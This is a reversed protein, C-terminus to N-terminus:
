TPDCRQAGREVDVAHASIQHNGPGRNGVRRPTAAVRHALLVNPHGGLQRQRVPAATVREVIGSDVWPLEVSCQRLRVARGIIGLGVGFRGTTALAHVVSRSLFIRRAWLCM